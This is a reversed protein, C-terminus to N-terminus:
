SIGCEDLYVNLFEKALSGPRINERTQEPAFWRWRDIEENTHLAAADSVYATFNVVLTTSPAFFKTRNFRLRAATIGAHKVTRGRRRSLAGDAKGRLGPLLILISGRFDYPPQCGKMLSPVM